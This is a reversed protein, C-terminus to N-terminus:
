AKCRRCVVSHTRWLTRQRETKENQFAEEPTNIQHICYVGNEQFTLKDIKVSQVRIGVCNNHVYCVFARTLLVDQVLLGSM